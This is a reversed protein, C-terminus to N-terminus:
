SSFSEESKQTKEAHSLQNPFELSSFSESAIPEIGGKHIVFNKHFEYYELRNIMLLFIFLYIKSLQIKKKKKQNKNQRVICLM